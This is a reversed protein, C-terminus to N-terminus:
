ETSGDKIGRGGSRSALSHARAACRAVKRAHEVAALLAMVAREQDAGSAEDLNLAMIESVIGDAAKVIRECKSVGFKFGGM